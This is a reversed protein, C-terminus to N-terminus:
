TISAVPGLSPEAVLHFGHVSFGDHLWVDANYLLRATVRYLPANISTNLIIYQMCNIASSSIM